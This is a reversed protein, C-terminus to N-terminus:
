YPSMACYRLTVTRYEIATGPCGLTQPNCRAGSGSAGATGSSGGSGAAGASDSAGASGASGASGTTAPLSGSARWGYCFLTSLPEALAAADALTESCVGDQRPVTVSTRNLTCVDITSPDGDSDTYTKIRVVYERNEVVEGFAVSRNCATAPSSQMVFEGIDNSTDQAVLRSVDILEAVYAGSGKGDGCQAAAPFDTPSVSIMTVSDTTTTSTDTAGCALVLGFSLGILFPRLPSPM